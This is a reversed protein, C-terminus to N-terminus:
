DYYYFVQYTGLFECIIRNDKLIVLSNFGETFQRKFGTGKFEYVKDDAKVQFRTPEEMIDTM